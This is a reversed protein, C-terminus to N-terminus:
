RDYCKPDESIEHLGIGFDSSAKSSTSVDVQQERTHTQAALWVEEMEERTTKRKVWRKIKRKASEMFIVTAEIEQLASTSRRQNRGLNSLKTVRNVDALSFEECLMTRRMSAPINLESRIRRPPRLEEYKSIEVADLVEFDWGLGIPPGSSVSPNIDPIQSYERITLTHFSVSKKLSSSAVSGDDSIHFCSKLSNTSPSTPHVNLSQIAKPLILEVSPAETNDNAKPLITSM